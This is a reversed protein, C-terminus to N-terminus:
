HLYGLLLCVDHCFPVLTPHFQSDYGVTSKLSFFTRFIIKGTPIYRLRQTWRYSLNIDILHSNIIIMFSSRTQNIREGEYSVKVKIFERTQHTWLECLNIDDNVWWWSAPMYFNRPVFRWPEDAGYTWMLPCNIRQTGFRIIEAIASQCKKISVKLHKLKHYGEENIPCNKTKTNKLFVICM